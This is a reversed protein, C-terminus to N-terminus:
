QLRLGPHAIYIADLILYGRCLNDQVGLRSKM